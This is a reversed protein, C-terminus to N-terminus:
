PTSRSRRPTTAATPRTTRADNNSEPDFARLRAQLRGNALDAPAWTLGWLDATGGLLPWSGAAPDAGTLDIMKNTSSWTTGNDNSLEVALKCGAPDSAKAEIRIEIGTVTNSAPVTLGFNGYAQRRAPPRRALPAPPMCTTARTPTRGTRSSTSPAPRRRAPRARGAWPDPERWGDPGRLVRRRLLEAPQGDPVPLVFEARATRTIPISPIGFIRMFFTGIDTKLTVNLRRDNSGDKLPTVVAGAGDIYGNKKAEAKATTYASAPSGPLWVVGALAAADAARQVRLSNAWYWSVDIVLAVFGTMVFISMVM